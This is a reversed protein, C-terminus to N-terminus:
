CCNISPYLIDNLWVENDRVLYSQKFVELYRPYFVLFILPQSECNEVYGNYRYELYQHKLYQLEVSHLLTPFRILICTISVSVTLFNVYHVVRWLVLCFAVLAMTTFLYYFKQFRIILNNTYHTNYVLGWNMVHTVM